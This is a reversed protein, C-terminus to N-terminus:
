RFTPSVIQANLPQTTQAAAVGFCGLAGLAVFVAVLGAWFPADWRLRTDM